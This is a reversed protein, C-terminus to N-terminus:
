LAVKAVHGTNPPAAADSHPRPPRILGAMLAAVMFGGMGSLLAVTYSHTLDYVGGAALPGIGGGLCYLAYLLGYIAGYHRRGFFKATFYAAIDAEAGAALGAFVISIGDLVLNAGSLTLLGCALGSLVFIVAAVKPGGFLDLFYGSILRGASVALGFLGLVAAAKAAPVGRDMLLPIAHVLVASVTTAAIFFALSMQWFSITRVAQAFTFDPEASGLEARMEGKPPEKPERFFLICLPLGLILPLAAMGLFAGRWGFHVILWSVYTPLLGGIAGTGLLSAGLALGRTKVFWGAIARTWTIPLTGSALVALLFSGLYFTWIHGSLRSMAIYGLVLLVQSALAVRRAGFRDAFGGVIGGAVLYGAAMFLASATVQARSWGFAHVLPGVLAGLSYASLVAVGSGAGAIAALLVLWARKFEQSKTLM